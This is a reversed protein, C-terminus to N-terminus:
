RPNANGYPKGRLSETRLPNLGYEDRGSVLVSGFNDLGFSGGLEDVRRTEKMAAYVSVSTPVYRATFGLRMNKTKGLHPLSAHMLTSWFIVFQGAKCPVSVAKSEDPEWNPDKQIERWDYGFFGRLVGNVEKQNVRTPDYHMGRSEDFNMVGQTGPIFQLCGTEESAETFAMWMTLAGGFDSGNPWVIHPIGNGGGFTDAQHWDTGESGPYKPFFESRWCIVDPGLISAVPHVIEPRCVLEALFDNDLHRDYDYVGTGPKTDPYPAKSRDWLALRERKWLANMEAPEFLTFPGLYGRTRFQELEERGLFFKKTPQEIQTSM